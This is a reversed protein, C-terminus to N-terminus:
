GGTLRVQKLRASSAGPELPALVLERAAASRSPIPFRQLDSTAPAGTERLIGLTVGGRGAGFALTSSAGEVVLWAPAATAGPCAPMSLRVWGATFAYDGAPVQAVVGPSCAPTGAARPTRRGDCGGLLLILLLGLAARRM